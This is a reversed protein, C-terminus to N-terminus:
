WDQTVVKTDRCYWEFSEKLNDPWITPEIGAGNEWVEGFGVEFRRFLIVKGRVEGLSPIRDELWWINRSQAISEKVMGSFVQAPTYGFDEQKISMILVESEGAESHLFTTIDAIITSFPMHQNLIGHFATLIRNYVSLRIDLFRIGSHLQIPLSFSPNQCQSIPFGHVAVSDFQILNTYELVRM